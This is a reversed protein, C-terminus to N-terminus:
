RQSVTAFLHAQEIAVHFLWVAMHLQIGRGDGLLDRVYKDREHVLLAAVAATPAGPRAAEIGQSHQLIIHQDERLEAM